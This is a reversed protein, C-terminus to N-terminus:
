LAWEEVFSYYGEVTVILHDLLQIELLKGGDIRSCILQLYFPM